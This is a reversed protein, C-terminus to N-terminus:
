KKELSRVRAQFEVLDIKPNASESQNGLYNKIQEKLLSIQTISSATEVSKKLLINDGMPISSSILNPRYKLINKTSGLLSSAFIFAMLIVFIAVTAVIWTITEGVQGKKNRM